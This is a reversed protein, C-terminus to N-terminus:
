FGDNRPQSLLDPRDGLLWTMPSQQTLTLGMCNTAMYEFPHLSSRQFDGLNSPPPPDIADKPFFGKSYSVHRETWELKHMKTLYKTLYMYAGFSKTVPRIDIVSAGTLAEWENKIV